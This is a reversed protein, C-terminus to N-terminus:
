QYYKEEKEKLFIFLDKNTRRCPRIDRSPVGDKTFYWGKGGDAIPKDFAVELQTIRDYSGLDIELPIDNSIPEIEALPKATGGRDYHLEDDLFVSEFKTRIGIFTGSQTFVGLKLNRSRLTYIYGIKCDAFPIYM